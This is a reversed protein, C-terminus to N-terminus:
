DPCPNQPYAKKHAAECSAYGPPPEPAPPPAGDLPLGCALRGFDFRVQLLRTLQSLSPIAHPRHQRHRALALRGLNMWLDWGALEREVAQRTRPGPLPPPSDLGESAQHNSDRIPGYVKDLAAQRIEMWRRREDRERAERDVVASDFFSPALKALRRHCRIARAFATLAQSVHDPGRRYGPLHRVTSRTLARCRRRLTNRTPPRSWKKVMEKGSDPTRTTFDITLGALGPGPRPIRHRPNRVRPQHFVHPRHRARDAPPQHKRSWAILTPESVNLETILRAYTWGQARLEIFRQVTNEDHMYRSETIAEVPNIGATLPLM